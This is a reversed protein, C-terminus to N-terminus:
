KKMVAPKSNSMGKNVGKGGGILQQPSISSKDKRNHYDNSAGNQPRSNGSNDNNAAATISQSRLSDKRLPPFYRKKSNFQNELNIPNQHTLFISDIFIIQNSLIAPKFVGYLRKVNLLSDTSLKVSLNKQSQLYARIQDSLGNSYDVGLLAEGRDETAFRMRWEIIEGPKVEPNDISFVLISLQSLPSIIVNRQYPWLDGSNLKIDITQENDNLINHRKAELQKDVKELLKDFKDINKGYWELSTYLQKRNLGHKKLIGTAVVYQMSDAASGSYHRQVWADGLQMDAMLDAMENENLVGDPQKNCSFLLCLLTISFLINFSRTM